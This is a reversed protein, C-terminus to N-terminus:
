SRSRHTALKRQMAQMKAAIRELAAARDPVVKPQLSLWAVQAASAHIAAVPHQLAFAEIRARSRAVEQHNLEAPALEERKTLATLADAWRRPPCTMAIVQRAGRIWEDPDPAIGTTNPAQGALVGNPFFVRDLMDRGFSDLDSVIMPTWNRPTRALLRVTRRATVPAATAPDAHEPQPWDAPLEVLGDDVADLHSLAIQSATVFMRLRQAAGPRSSFDLLEQDPAM